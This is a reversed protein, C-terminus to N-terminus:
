KSKAAGLFTALRAQFNPDLKQIELSLMKMSTKVLQLSKSVTEKEKTTLLKSLKSELSSLSGNVIAQAEVIKRTKRHGM